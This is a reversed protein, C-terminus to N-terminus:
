EPHPDLHRVVFASVGLILFPTHDHEHWTNQSKVHATNSSNFMREDFAIMLSLSVVDDAPAAEDPKASGDEPVKRGKMAFVLLSAKADTNSIRLVTMELQASQPFNHM